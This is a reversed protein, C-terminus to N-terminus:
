LKWKKKLEERACRKIEKDIELLEKEEMKVDKKTLEEAVLFKLIREKFAEVAFKEFSKKVIEDREILFYLEEPVEIVVQKPM